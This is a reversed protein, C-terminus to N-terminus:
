QGRRLATALVCQDPHRCAHQRWSSRRGARFNRGMVPLPASSPLFTREHRRQRPRTPARQVAPPFAPEAWPRWATSRLAPRLALRPLEATIGFVDALRRVSQKGLSPGTQDPETFPLPRLMVANVVTFIATNAGVGLALALCALFTFGPSQWFTRLGYRIDQRLVDLFRGPGQDPLNSARPAAIPAISRIERALARPENLELLADRYAEEERVGRALLSRYRADVHQAIEDIVDSGKGVDEGLARAIEQRWNRTEPM